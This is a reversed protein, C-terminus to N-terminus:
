KNFGIPRTKPQNAFLTTNLNTRISKLEKDLGYYRSSTLTIETQLEKAETTIKNIADKMDPTISFLINENVILKKLEKSSLDLSIIVKDDIETLINFYKQCLDKNIDPYKNKEAVLKRFIDERKETMLQISKIEISIHELNNELDNVSNLESRLKNKFEEFTRVDRFVHELMGKLEMKEFDGIEKENELSSKYGMTTM